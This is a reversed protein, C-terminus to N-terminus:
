DQRSSAPKVPRAARRSRRSRRRQDADRLEPAHLARRHPAARFAAHRPSRVLGQRQLGGHRRRARGRGLSWISHGVWSPILGAPHKRGDMFVVRHAGDDMLEHLHLHALSGERHVVDRVEVPLSQDAAREDPSMRHVSRGTVQAQRAAGEGVAAAAARGAQPRRRARHRRGHRWRGV